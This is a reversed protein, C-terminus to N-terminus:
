HDDDSDNRFMQLLKERAIQAAQRRPRTQPLMREQEDENLANQDAQQASESGAPCEIPYLLSLPRNVYKGSSIKLKASRINGDTSKNLSVIRGLKWANRSHSSDRILVVSDIAPKMASTIRPQRHLTQSRERLALLYQDSWLSWFSQLHRQGTKWKRLLEERSSLKSFSVEDTSMEPTGLMTNVGLFHAPTLIEPVDVDEDVYVIPRTNVVAEVEKVLTQLQIISLCLRGLSKRLCSKVIGVMREYFGGMWPSFEPIYHWQIAEKSMFNVVSEDCIVSNWARHLTAHVLKFQAANDSVIKEPRGRQAIFRRLCLLFQHASMDTVVELSIARVALCTFLCIWVKIHKGDVIVTLPGLYDLGTFTFPPSQSVREKPLPPMRPMVYPGTQHKRCPVCQKLIQRVTVRGQPIWYTYRLQSLTHAVGAHLLRIHCDMVVLYTFHDQKPLLKPFKADYQIDSNQLRGHCRLINDSDAKVGLSKAISSTSVKRFHKQQVYREWLQRATILDDPPTRHFILNVFKQCFFTVKLLKQLTSFRTYDIGFPAPLFSLDSLLSTEYLTSSHGKCETQIAELLEPTTIDFDFLPWDESQQTLWSPGEWWLSNSQLVSVAVGRSAIDAPNHATNVYRYHVDPYKRIERVRNGVFVSLVKQSRIWHLVCKSDSWLHCSDICLKLHKQVYQLARVGIVVGLLELRPISM